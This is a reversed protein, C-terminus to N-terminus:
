DFRRGSDEWEKLAKFLLNYAERPTRIGECQNLTVIMEEIKLLRQWDSQDIRLSAESEDIFNLKPEIKCHNILFDKYLIGILKRQDSLEVPSPTYALSPGPQEQAPEQVAVPGRNQGTPPSPQNVEAEVAEIGVNLQPATLPQNQGSSGFRQEIWGSSSSRISSLSLSTADEAPASPCEGKDPYPGDAEIENLFHSIQSDTPAGRPMMPNSEAYGFMRAKVAFVLLFALPSSCGLKVLFSSLSKFALSIGVKSLLYHFLDVYGFAMYLYYCVILLPLLLFVITSIRILFHSM